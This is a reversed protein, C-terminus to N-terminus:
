SRNERNLWGIKLYTDSRNAIHIVAVILVDDIITYTIQHAWRRIRFLNEYGKLKQCGKPCPNTRLTNVCRSVKTKERNSLRDFQAEAIRTFKIKINSM